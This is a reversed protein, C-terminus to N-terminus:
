PCSEIFFESYFDQLDIFKSFSNQFDTNHEIEFFASPFKRNNFWIVDITKARRLVEPYTFELIDSVTTIEKLPKDLFLKNKDQNPVFTSLGKLNGIESILGQYYSHNFEEQIQSNKQDSINFKSLVEDKFSKLAWLGPKIKFFFREDQVIRRITAFPTKTKWGSVDIASNLYGLTAFGGNQRMLEIVQEHQTM